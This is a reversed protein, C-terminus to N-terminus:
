RGYSLEKEREVILFMMNGGTHDQAMKQFGFREYLKTKHPYTGLIVTTKGDKPLTKQIENLAFAVIDGGVGRGQLDNEVRVWSIGWTNPQFLEETVCGSGVLKGNLEAILFQPIVEGQKEFLSLYKDALKIYAGDNWAYMFDRLAPIDAKDAFRM